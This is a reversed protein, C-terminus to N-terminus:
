FGRRALEEVRNMTMRMLLLQTKWERERKYMGRREKSRVSKENSVENRQTDVKLAPPFTLTVPALLGSCPLDTM